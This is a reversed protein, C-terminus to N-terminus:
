VAEFADHFRARRRPQLDVDALRIVRVRTVEIAAIRRDASDVVALLQGVEPLPENEREYALVLGSTATKEGSLVATVLRDRLPGPFAFEMRPLDDLNM